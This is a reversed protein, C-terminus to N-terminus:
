RQPIVGMRDCPIHRSVAGRVSDVRHPHSSRPPDALLREARILVETAGKLQALTRCAAHIRSDTERRSRSGQITIWAPQNGAGQSPGLLAERHRWAHEPPRKENTQTPTRSTLCPNREGVGGYSGSEGGCSVGVSQPYALAHAAGSRYIM